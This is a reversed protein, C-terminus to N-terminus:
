NKSYLFIFPTEHQEKIAMKLKANTKLIKYRQLDAAELTYLYTNNYTLKRLFTSLFIATSVDSAIIDKRYHIWIKDKKGWM